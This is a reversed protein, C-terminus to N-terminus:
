IQKLKQKLRPESYRSPHGIDKIIQLPVIERSTIRTTCNQQQELEQPYLKRNDSLILLFQSVGTEEQQARKVSM